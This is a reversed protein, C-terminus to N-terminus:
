MDEYLSDFDDDFSSQSEDLPNSDDKVTLDDDVFVNSVNSSTPLDVEVEDTASGNVFDDLSLEPESVEPEEYISDPDFDNASVTAAVAAGALLNNGSVRNTNEEHTYGYFVLDNKQTKLPQISAFRPSVNPSYIVCIGDPLNLFMNEDIFYREAQRVTRDSEMTEALGANVSTRRTEDDVQITGSMRALWLATEPNQIRYAIKIKCNEVVAGIVADGNLDAPCDRLDDISQHAMVVHMGKDRAAGLAELSPKSIHYKLEDLFVCVPRINGSVRDRDECLQILRLLLMRQATIVRSNRMSGVVYVCGGGEVVDRMSLGDTASIAKVKALEFLKSCFSAAEKEYSMLLEDECLSSLVKKNQNFAIDAAVGAAKRDAIKYFDSDGGKEGLSFGAIFLEEIQQETADELLCFAEKSSNLDILYFPKGMEKCQQSLVHPAWEDNKPDLVFVAEGHKVAQSLMVGSIVGKGAGTTGIVDIHSTSFAGYPIYVPKKNEDLGVVINDGANAILRKVDFDYRSPLLSRVNRADTKQQRLLESKKTSTTLKAKLKPTVYRNFIFNSAVGLVVAAVHFWYRNGFSLVKESAELEEKNMFTYVIPAVLYAGIGAALSFSWFGVILTDFNSKEEKSMLWVRVMLFGTLFTFFHSYEYAFYTFYHVGVLIFSGIVDLM